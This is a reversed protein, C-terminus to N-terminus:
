LGPDNYEKYQATIINIGLIIKYSTGILGSGRIYIKAEATIKLIPLKAISQFNTSLPGLKAFVRRICEKSELNKRIIKKTDNINPINNGIRM